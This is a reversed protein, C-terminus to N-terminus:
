SATPALRPDGRGLRDPAARGGAAGRRRRRGAAAPHRVRHRRGGAGARGPLTRLGDVQLSRVALLPGAFLLWIVAVLPWCRLAWNSRPRRAGGPLAPRRAGRPCPPSRLRDGRPAPGVPPHPRHPGPHDTGTRSAPTSARRTPEGPGARRTTGEPRTGSTERARLADLVEPGVMSVDGAGMTLVLDGPRTRTALAPAAASWSPEFHVRGAPLPVADAVMAGTVGPVPDERAGYVDM